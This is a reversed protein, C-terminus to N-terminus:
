ESNSEGRQTAQGYRRSWVVESDCVIDLRVWKTTPRRGGRQKEFWSQGVNRTNGSPSFTVRLSMPKGEVRIAKAKSVSARIHVCGRECGQMIHPTNRISEVSMQWYYMEVPVKVLCVDNLIFYSGGLGIRELDPDSDHIYIDFAGEALNYDSIMIDGGSRGTDLPVSFQYTDKLAEAKLARFSDALARGEASKM